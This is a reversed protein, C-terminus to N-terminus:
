HDNRAGPKGKQSFWQVAEFVKSHIHDHGISQDVGNKKFIEMVDNKVRALHIKVGGGKLATASISPRTLRSSIWRTGSSKEIRRLIM